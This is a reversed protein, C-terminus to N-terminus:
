ANNEFEDALEPSGAPEQCARRTWPSWDLGRAGRFFVAFFVAFHIKDFDFECVKYFQASSQIRRESLSIDLHHVYDSQQDGDSM